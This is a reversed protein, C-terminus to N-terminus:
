SGLPPLWCLIGEQVPLGKTLRQPEPEQPLLQLEGPIASTKRLGSLKPFYPEKSHHSAFHESKPALFGQNKKAM